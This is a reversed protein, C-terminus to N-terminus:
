GHVRRPSTQCGRSTAHRQEPGCNIAARHTMRVRSCCNHRSAGSSASIPLNMALDFAVDIGNLQWGTGTGATWARSARRQRLMWRRGSSKLLHNQPKDGQERFCRGCPHYQDMINVYTRASIERAIFGAVEANRCPREAHGSAAGFCGKSGSWRGDVVLDGVQRHM